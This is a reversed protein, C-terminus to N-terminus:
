MAEAVSGDCAVGELIQRLPEANLRFHQRSGISQRNASRQPDTLL